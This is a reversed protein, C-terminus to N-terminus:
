RMLPYEKFGILQCETQPVMGFREQVMEQMMCALKIVDGSTAGESTVIMNAHQHSVMAGGVRLEGKIGLKDLYYSVYPLKKGNVEHTIEHEHFNRFFCGCTRTSPYRAVRHRIIEALRGSHYAIDLDSVKKLKLTADLLLYEGGALRSDDYGFAFWARDVEQIQGTARAMVTGGVVYDSLAANFYHLNMRVAGGVSAPIGGFEELGVTNHALCAKILQHMTVGAGVRVFATCGEQGIFRIEDLRPHIVLGDFGDDSVLVNAGLGLIFIEIDRQVAYALARQCEEYSRPECFLTASGGTGFWTRGALSVASEFRVEDALSSNESGKVQMKKVSSRDTNTPEM